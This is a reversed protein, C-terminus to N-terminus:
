QSMDSNPLTFMDGLMFDAEDPHFRMFGGWTYFTMEGFLVKERDYYFDVRVQPIGKSLKEAYEIIDHIADPFVYGDEGNRYYTWWDLHKLDRSYNDNFRKCLADHAIGRCVTVNGVVGDFCTIKFEVSDDRGLTDIFPEAIIRPKINKYVWERSSWYFNRKLHKTLKRRAFDFDFESKNRCVVGGGSDHTTKLVFSQPLEDFNIDEFRDWVGLTPIVHDEGIRATVYKKVEVKDALQTYMPNHDYVKSWQLKETLRKPKDWRMKRHYYLWHMMGLYMKDPMWKLVYGGIYMYGWHLNKFLDKTKESIM